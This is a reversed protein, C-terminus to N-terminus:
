NLFDRLETQKTTYDYIRFEEDMIYDLTEKKAKQYEAYLNELHEKRLQINPNLISNFDYGMKKYKSLRALKFSLNLLSLRNRYNDKRYRGNIIKKIIVRNAFDFFVQKRTSVAIKKKYIEYYKPYQKQLTNKILKHPFRPSPVNQSPFKIDLYYECVTHSLGSYINKKRLYDHIRKDLFFHSIFGIAFLREQRNKADKLMHRGFNDGCISEEMEHIFKSFNPKITITKLETIYYIDPYIAGQILYKCDNKSFLKPNEMALEKVLAIHTLTQAM